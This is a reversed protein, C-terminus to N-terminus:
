QPLYVSNQKNHTHYNLQQHSVKCQSSHITRRSRQRSAENPDEKQQEENTWLREAAKEQLKAELFVKLATKLHDGTGLAGEDGHNDWVCVVPQLMFMPYGRRADEQFRHLSVVEVWLDAGHFLWDQLYQTVDVVTWTDHIMKIVTPLSKQQLHSTNQPLSINAADDVRAKLATTNSLDLTYSAHSATPRKSHRLTLQLSAVDTHIIIDARAQKRLHVQM